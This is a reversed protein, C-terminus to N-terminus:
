VFRFEEDCENKLVKQFLCVEHDEQSYTSLANVIAQSWELILSKIGYRQVLYTYVYQEMTELPMGAQNMKADYKVKMQYIDWILDKLKKLPM